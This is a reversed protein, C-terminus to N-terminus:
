VNWKGVSQYSAVQATHSPLKRKDKFGEISLTIVIQTSTQDLQFRWRWMDCLVKGFIHQGVTYLNGCKAARRECGAILQYKLSETGLIVLV